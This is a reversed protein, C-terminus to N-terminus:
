LAFWKLESIIVAHRTDRKLFICLITVVFTCDVRMMTVTKEGNRKTQDDVCPFVVAVHSASRMAIM